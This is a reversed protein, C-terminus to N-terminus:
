IAAGCRTQQRRERAVTTVTTDHRHDLAVLLFLGPISLACHTAVAKRAAVPNRAAV